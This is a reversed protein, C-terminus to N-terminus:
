NECVTHCCLQCVEAGAEESYWGEPPLEPLYKLGLARLVTWSESTRLSNPAQIASGCTECQTVEFLIFGKPNQPDMTYHMM